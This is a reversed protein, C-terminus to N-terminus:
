TGEENQVTPVMKVINKFGIIIVFGYLALLPRWDNYIVILTRMKNVSKNVYLYYSAQQCWSQIMTTQHKLCPVQDRANKLVM